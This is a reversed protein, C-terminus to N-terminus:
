PNSSSVLSDYFEWTVREYFARAPPSELLLRVHPWLLEAIRELEPRAVAGISTLWDGLTVDGKEKLFAEIEARLRDRPHAQKALELAIEEAATDVHDRADDDVTKTLEAVSREYLWAVVSQRLAIFKPDAGKAVVLDAIKSKSKRMFVLLFKRIEPELRKDFEGRIAGISKIVTGSGIPMVKKLLAPLGWDAFFPNVSDNFEVLADYLVDRLVEEAAEDEFVRRVLDEPLLDPRAILAAIAERAAEPVFDGVKAEDTKLASVTRRHIERLVPAALGRIADATVVDTLVASLAAPDVLERLPRSLVHDYANAFSRVFDGRARDDTLREALYAIHKARLAAVTAPPFSLDTM